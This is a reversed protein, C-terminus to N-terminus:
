RPIGIAESEGYNVLFCDGSLYLINGIYCGGEGGLRYLTITIKDM